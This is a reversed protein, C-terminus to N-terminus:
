KTAFILFVFFIILFILFIPDDMLKKNKWKEIFGMLVVKM